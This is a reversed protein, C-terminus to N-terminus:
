WAMLDESLPVRSIQTIKMVEISFAIERTKYPLSQHLSPLKLTFRFTARLATLFIMGHPSQLSGGPFGKFILWSFM